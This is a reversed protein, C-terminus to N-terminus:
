VCSNQRDMLHTLVPLPSLAIGTVFCPDLIREYKNRISSHSSNSGNSDSRCNDRSFCWKHAAHESNWLLAQHMALDNRNTNLEGPLDGDRHRELCAKTELDKIWYCNVWCREGANIWKGSTLLYLSLNLFPRFWTEIKGSPHSSCFLTVENHLLATLTQRWKLVYSYTQKKERWYKELPLSVM